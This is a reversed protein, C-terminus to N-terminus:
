GVGDAQEAADSLCVTLVNLGLLSQYEVEDALRFVLRIGINATPDDSNTIDYWERPNFPICDDKIRLTVGHSQIIVRLEVVHERRDAHFGHRVINGAMEELCLGASASKRETIGHGACFSQVMQATHTVDELGRLEVVLKEASGFDDPLILWEGLNRPWHRCRWVVYAITVAITLLMGIPFSLWVGFAGLRPALLIAPILMSFFGDMVSIMNVYFRHGSAQCYNSYSILVLTMPVCVNYVQFLRVTLRYADSGRDPFFIASLAPSFLVLALSVGLVMAMMRTMVLKALALVGERNNEGIFVSTLMRVVAGDGLSLALILGSVLNFASMASLGAEGSCSLLMRNLIFGRVGLCIVLLANPFGIRLVRPLEGFVIYKLTPKMQAKKTFYYQVLVLFYAWNALSTSLALGWVGLKMVTVFLIDLAVNLAIMLLIGASGRREQREMQLMSALQQALLLPIIGFGYGTIYAILPARLAANSGMLDAMTGPAFLSFATLVGGILLACLLGLSCVGRIRDIRGSGLYRGSLVSVGGLLISGTAELVRMMPYYLGVVGVTEADIFRAAVIGDVIANVSGMAVIAVQVQLLRFFLSATMDHDSRRLIRKM